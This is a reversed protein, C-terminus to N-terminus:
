DAKIHAERIVKGWKQFDDKVLKAFEEPTGTNPVLGQKALQERTDPDAVIARIEANYRALMEPPLGPPAWVGLWLDVDYGTVGQEHLSPINQFLPHREKLSEGLVKVQGAKIKPLAVHIPLFMTPIIGAILDNEAQASGKYPVHVIDLGAQLKLLEMCLHHHTGNGPSGYNLKGPQSRVWAIFEQATGVPVSKHVVLALSTSGVSTIATLDKVVDYPIQPYLHPATVISAPGVMITHGDPPSKVVIETGITGSAGPRNEVFFPQDWRAQLKPALLRAVIDPGVGPTFSVIIRVPRKSLGQSFARFPAAAAIALAALMRRRSQTPSRNM